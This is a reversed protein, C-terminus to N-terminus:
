PAIERRFEYGLRLGVSIDSLGSGLERKDDDKGYFNMELEPTLVLQQTLMVEYELGLRL